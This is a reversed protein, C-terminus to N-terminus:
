LHHKTDLTGELFNKLLELDVIGVSMKLKQPYETNMAKMKHPNQVAWYRCIQISLVIDIVHQWM